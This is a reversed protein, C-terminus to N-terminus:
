KTQSHLINVQIKEQTNKELLENRPINHKWHNGFVLASRNPIINHPLLELSITHSSTQM